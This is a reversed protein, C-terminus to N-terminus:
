QYVVPVGREIPIDVTQHNDSLGQLSYHLLYCLAGCYWKRIHQCTKITTGQPNQLVQPLFVTLGSRHDLIPPLFPMSSVRKEWDIATLLCHKTYIPFISLLSDFPRSNTVM